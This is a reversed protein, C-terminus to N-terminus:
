SVLSYCAVHSRYGGAGRVQTKVVLVVGVFNRELGSGDERGVVVWRRVLRRRLRGLGDGLRDVVLRGFGGLLNRSLNVFRGHFEGLGEIRLLSDVKGPILNRWSAWSELFRAGLDLDLDLLRRYLGRLRYM